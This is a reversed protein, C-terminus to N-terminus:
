LNLLVHSLTLVKLSSFEKMGVSFARRCIIVFKGNQYRYEKTARSYESLQFFLRRRVDHLSLCFM